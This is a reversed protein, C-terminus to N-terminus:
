RSPTTQFDTQFDEGIVKAMFDAVKESGRRNFHCCNDIYLPEEIDAFLGTLDYFAVGDGVLAEGATQLHPYGREVLRRYPSEELWARQREARGMPKSGPVYQNPQLFHYYRIGHARALEHMLLSSRRWAEALDALMEEESGYRRRPGTAQYGDTAPAAGAAAELEGLRRALARDRARWLLNMTVSWALPRHSFTRALAARRQKLYAIEGWRRLTDPSPLEGVRVQWSRPFLPYVGAPLNETPPLAIENFGDLNIVVDLHRGLTLLWALTMLQQPQKYGGLAFSEVVVPRGPMRHELRETLRERGAFSVLMAVSGGFIGVRLAGPPPAPERHRPLLFGLDSIRLDGRARREPDDDLDHDFVFGLYPHIVQQAAFRPVQIEQGPPIVDQGAALRRREAALERYSFGGDLVFFGALSALEAAVALGALLLTTFL